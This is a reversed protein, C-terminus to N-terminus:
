SKKFISLDMRDTRLSQWDRLFWSARFFNMLSLWVASDAQKEQSDLRMLLWTKILLRMTVFTLFVGHWCMREVYILRRLFNNQQLLLQFYPINPLMPSFHLHIALLGIFVKHAGIEWILGWGVLLRTVSGSFHEFILYTMRGRRQFHIPVIRIQRKSDENKHKQAELVKESMCLIEKIINICTALNCHSKTYRHKSKIKRNFEWLSINKRRM